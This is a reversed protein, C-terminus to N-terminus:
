QLSSPPWGARTSQWYRQLDAMWTRDTAWRWHAYGECCSPLCRLLLPCAGCSGCRCMGLSCMLSSKSESALRTSCLQSASHHSHVASCYQRQESIRALGEKDAQAVYPFLTANTLARYASTSVWADTAFVVVYFVFLAACLAIVLRLAWKGVGLARCSPVAKGMGHLLTHTSHDHIRNRNQWFDSDPSQM